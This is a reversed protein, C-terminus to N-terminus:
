WLWAQKRTMNKVKNFSNDVLSKSIIASEKINDFKDGAVRDVSITGYGGLINNDKFYSSFFSSFNKNFSDLVSFDRLSVRPLWITPYTSHKKWIEPYFWNM